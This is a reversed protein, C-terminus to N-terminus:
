HNAGQSICNVLLFYTCLCFKKLNYCYLVCFISRVSACCIIILHFNYNRTHICVVFSSISQVVSVCVFIFESQSYIIKMAMSHLQEILFPITILFSFAAIMKAKTSKFFKRQSKIRTLSLLM